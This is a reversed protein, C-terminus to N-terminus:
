KLILFAKCENKAEKYQKELWKLKENLERTYTAREEDTGQASELKKISKFTEYM